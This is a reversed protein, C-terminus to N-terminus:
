MMGRENVMCVRIPTEVTVVHCMNVHVASNVPMGNVVIIIVIGEIGMNM